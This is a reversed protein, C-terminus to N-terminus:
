HAVHPVELGFRNIIAQAEELRSENIIHQIDGVEDALNVGEELLLLAGRQAAKFVWEQREVTLLWANSLTRYEVGYKKMRFAGAKGYLERRETDADYFLSPLGLFFDMQKAMECCLDYHINRDDPYKDQWGIHIHGAATRFNRTGDPKVNKAATWGNYDPDCGMEVAKAPQLAMYTPDFHAVPVIEFQYSPVMAQLSTMVHAINDIFTKVDAAPDTNFELAMGDVQVAGHHVPLPRRKTGRVLGFASVITNNQSVFFEPDTGILINRM